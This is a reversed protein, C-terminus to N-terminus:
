CITNPFKWDTHPYDPTTPYEPITPHEPFHWERDYIYKDEIIEITKKDMDIIIKM